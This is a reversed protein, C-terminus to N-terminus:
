TAARNRFAVWLAAVSFAVVWGLSYLRLESDVLRAPLWSGVILAGVALSGALSGVLLRISFRGTVHGSPADLESPRLPGLFALGRSFASDFVRRFLAGTILGLLSGLAIALM